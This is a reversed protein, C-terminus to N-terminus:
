QTGAIRLHRHDDLGGHGGYYVVLLSDEKGDLFNHLESSLANQPGVSPIRYTRTSTFKLSMFASNLEELEQELDLDDEEWSLIISHVEEYRYPLHSSPSM